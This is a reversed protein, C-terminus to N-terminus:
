RVAGAVAASEKQRASPPGGAAAMLLEQVVGVNHELTFQRMVKARGTEGFRARLDPRSLLLEMAEALAAANKEPVLLGSQMHDVLEPIGSVETSVVPVRMAMAEILVNPIGDRDGDDGLICPLVFMEAERYMGVLRDQTMEAVLSVHSALGLEAILSELQGRAPGWGVIACSFERGREKLIRCAQILYAFGKKECFRGVSLLQPPGDPRPAADLARFRSLDVGHYALHIPTSGRGVAELYKKNYGTCTLVFKAGRIKRALECDKTLYIDKAHATFSFTIGCFHHVLEAVSTPVNAFHAHLHQIKRRQMARTLLGAQVFDKLRRKEPLRLHFWLTSLYRIPNRVFLVLHELVEPTADLPDNRVGTSLFRGLRVFLPDRRVYTVPAQVECVAPHFKERISPRKLSFLHLRTGLRELQVIENLIFTESLKPYTKLLYGVRPIDHNPRM